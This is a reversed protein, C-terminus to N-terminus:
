KRMFIKHIILAFQHKFFNLKHVKNGVLHESHPRCKNPHSTDRSNPGSVVYKSLSTDLCEKSLVIIIFRGACSPHNLLFMGRTGRGKLHTKPGQPLIKNVWGQEALLSIECRTSAPLSLAASLAACFQM